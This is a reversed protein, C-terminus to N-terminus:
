SPICFVYFVKIRKKPNKKNNKKVTWALPSSQREPFHKLHSEKTKFTMWVQSKGRRVLPSEFM